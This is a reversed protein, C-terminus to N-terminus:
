KRRLIKVVAKADASIVQKVGTQLAIRRRDLAAKTDPAVTEAARRCEEDIRTLCDDACAGLNVLQRDMSTIGDQLTKLTDRCASKKVQATAPAATKTTPSEQEAPATTSSTTDLQKAAFFWNAVYTWLTSPVAKSGGDDSSIKARKADHRAPEDLREDDDDDHAPLGVPLLVQDVQFHSACDLGEDVTAFCHRDDDTTMDGLCQTCLLHLCPLRVTTALALPEKCCPCCENSM